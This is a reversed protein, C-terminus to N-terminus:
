ISPHSKFISINHLPIKATQKSTFEVPHTKKYSNVLDCKVSFSIDYKVNPSLNKPKVPNFLYLGDKAAYLVRTNPDDSGLIIKKKPPKNIVKFHTSCNKDYLNKPAYHINAVREVNSFLPLVSSLKGFIIILPLMIFIPYVCGIWLYVSHEQHTLNSIKITGNVSIVQSVNWTEIGYKTFLQTSIGLLSDSIFPYINFVMWIGTLISAYIASSNRYFHYLSIVFIIIAYFGTLVALIFMYTNKVDDHPSMLCIKRNSAFEINSFYIPCILILNLVICVVFITISKCYVIASFFANPLINYYILYLFFLTIPCAMLLPYLTHIALIFRCIHNSLPWEDYQFYVIRLPDVLLLHIANTYVFINSICRFENHSQANLMILVINVLISVIYLIVYVFTFQAGLPYDHKNYFKPLEKLVILSTDNPTDKSDSLEQTIQKKVFVGYKQKEDKATNNKTKKPPIDILKRSKKWNEDHPNNKITKLSTVNNYESDSIPKSNLRTSNFYKTIKNENSQFPKVANLHFFLILICYIDM